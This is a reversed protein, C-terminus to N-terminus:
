YVVSRGLLAEIVQTAEENYTDNKTPLASVKDEVLYANKNDVMITTNPISKALFSGVSPDSLSMTELIRKGNIRKVNLDNVTNAENKNHLVNYDPKTTFEYSNDESKKSNSEEVKVKEVPESDETKAAKPKRGRKSKTKVEDKEESSVVPEEKSKKSKKTEKVTMSSQKASIGDDYDWKSKQKTSKWNYKGLLGKVTKNESRDYVGDLVRDIVDQNVDRIKPDFSSYHSLCIQAKECLKKEDYSTKRYQSIFDYLELVQASKERSISGYTNLYHKAYKGLIIKARRIRADLEQNEIAEKAEQEKRKQEAIRKAENAEKCKAIFRETKHTVKQELSLEMDSTVEYLRKFWEVDAKYHECLDELSKFKKGNMDHIFCDNSFKLGCPYDLGCFAERLTCGTEWRANFTEEDLNYAKLAFNLSVFERGDPTKIVGDKTFLSRNGM